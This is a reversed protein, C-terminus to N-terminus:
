YRQCIKNYPCYQCYKEHPTQYFRGTESFIESILVQLQKTFEKELQHFAVAHRDQKIEPSFKEDFFKRLSYIAPQIDETKGTEKVYVLCYILAQLIEKRPKEKDKEFLEGLEKFSFSEVNGTKYDIIRLKGNVRDVRDIKGGVPVQLTKEGVNVQLTTYYGGELAVLEFPALELDIELLRQIFTKINEYILVTKGELKVTKAAPDKQRFYHKGIAKRIENEILVKNKAIGKLDEPNITKGEFPKYLNEIVEHFISGFVPSDIEDKMEDPEPLHLIYRFYFRLSCMLWTNIATPSLPSSGSVRELLIKTKDSSGQVEVPPVPENSFKFDLTTNRVDLGSDYLLQFGYRSLEGTGIGEKLTSYTATITEARQILRYFYYAYMADQEDIGPLGFGKRLNYPIFSPATFTRPWKNENLGLVILNKFDLCRTELIGMVQMGSLPEGEFSVSVQGIYQGFLRFYVANSIERGQVAVVDTVVAGLKEVSQYVSYILESLLQNNRDKKVTDYFYGLIELFWISYQEVKEPLSFVLRHFESFDVEKLPVTIRNNEKIDALFEATKQPEINGLLQHNLVDTVFRHYVVTEGKDNQRRNKLLNVLLLLFGYVVSNKVPYGMTVNVTGFNQPIAGLAPYLLSEDALVVATNDFKNKYSSRIEELFQPIEQAQGYNSSVAVLRIKKQKEAFQETNFDFDGPSPFQLLNERIFRGAENKNDDLYFRDYDWLFVAKQQQDLLKFFRKECNNLANLGIIYYKEFEFVPDEDRFKEIVRRDSMGGYALGRESLYSRFESYVPYLNQWISIFKEQHAKQGPGSLSGWFREIATKQEPTLYDFLQEIEKLDALNTFLDKANVLYRDIDNFDALLVEGWFYFEDFSEASHTHKKFIDYLISILHLKEGQHLSSYESILENITKIQPGIVPQSIQKQLYSIFFTGARRNPFVLCLKNLKNGHKKYIYDACRALFREM